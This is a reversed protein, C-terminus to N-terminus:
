LEIGMVKALRRRARALLTGVHAPPVDLIQAVEKYSRGGEYFLQLALRDRTELQELHSVVLAQQEVHAVDSAPSAGGQPIREPEDLSEPTQRRAREAVRYAKRRTVVALWAKLSFPARFKSLARGDHALLESFVEGVVDEAVSEAGSVGIRRLTQRAVTGIHARYRRAFEDWAGRSGSM